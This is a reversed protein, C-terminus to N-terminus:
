RLMWPIILITISKLWFSQSYETKLKPNKAESSNYSSWFLIFPFDKTCTLVFYLLLYFLCDFETELYIYVTFTQAFTLAQDNGLYIVIAGFKSRLCIKFLTTSIGKFIIKLLSEFPWGYQCYSKFLWFIAFLAIKPRILQNRDLKFTKFSLKSQLEPFDFFTEPKDSLLVELRCKFDVSFVKCTNPFIKFM